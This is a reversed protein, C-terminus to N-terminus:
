LGLYRLDEVRVFSHEWVSFFFAHHCNQGIRLVVQWTGGRFDVLKHKVLLLLLILVIERFLLCHMQLCYSRSAVIEVLLDKGWQLYWLYNLVGWSSAVQHNVSTQGILLLRCGILDKICKRSETLCANLERPIKFIQETKWIHSCRIDASKM